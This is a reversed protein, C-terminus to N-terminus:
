SRTKSPRFSEGKLQQIMDKIRGEYVPKLVPGACDNVASTAWTVCNDAGNSDPNFSYKGPTRIRTREELDKNEVKLQWAACQFTASGRICRDYYSIDDVVEGDATHDFLYDRWRAPEAYEEPLSEILMRFGRCIPRDEHKWYVAMHGPHDLNVEGSPFVKVGIM